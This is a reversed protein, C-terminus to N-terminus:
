LRLKFWEVPINSTCATPRLVFIDTVLLRVGLTPTPWLRWREVRLSDVALSASDPIADSLSSIYGGGGGTLMGIVGAGDIALVGEADLATKRGGGDATWEDAAGDEAGDRVDVM